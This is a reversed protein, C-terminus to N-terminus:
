LPHGISQHGPPTLALSNAADAQLSCSCPWPMLRRPLHCSRVGQSPRRKFSMSKLSRFASGPLSKGSTQAKIEPGGTGSGAPTAPKGNASDQLWICYSLAGGLM